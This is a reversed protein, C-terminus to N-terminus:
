LKEPPFLSVWFRLSKNTASSSMGACSWRWENVRQFNCSRRRSQESYNMKWFHRTQRPTRRTRLLRNRRARSQSFRFTCTASPVACSMLCSIARSKLCGRLSNPAHSTGAHARGFESSSRSRSIKWTRTVEWCGLWRAPWWLKNDRSWNRSPAQTGGVWWNWSGCTRLTKRRDGQSEQITVLCRDSLRTCRDSNVFFVHCAALIQSTGCENGHNKNCAPLAGHM